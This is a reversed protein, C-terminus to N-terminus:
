LITRVVRDMTSLIRSTSGMKFSRPPIITSGNKHQNQTNVIFVCMEDRWRKSRRKGFGRFWYPAVRIQFDTAAYGPPLKVAGVAVADALLEQFAKALEGYQWRSDFQTKGLYYEAL